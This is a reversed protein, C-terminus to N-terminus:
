NEFGRRETPSFIKNMIQVIKLCKWWKTLLKSKFIHITKSVIAIDDSNSTWIMAIIVLIKPLNGMLVTWISTQRELSKYKSIFSVKGQRSSSICIGLTFNLIKVQSMVRIELVGVLWGDMMCNPTLLLNEPIERRGLFKEKFLDQRLNFNLNWWSFGTPCVPEERFFM